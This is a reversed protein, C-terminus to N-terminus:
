RNHVTFYPMDFTAINSRKWKYKTIKWKYEINEMQIRYNKMQIAYNEMANQIKWKYEILKCKYDFNELPMRYNKM